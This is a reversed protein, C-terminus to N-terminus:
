YGGKTLVGLSAGWVIHASIMLRNREAPEDKASRYLNFSPLLGVYNAAWVTLGFIIGSSIPNQKPRSGAVLGYLSGMAAGYAFHNTFVFPLKQDPTLDDHLDVSELLSDTVQAPPLPDRQRAPLRRHWLVMLVTMPVTALVGALGGRILRTSWERVPQRAIRNQVRKIPVNRVNENQM